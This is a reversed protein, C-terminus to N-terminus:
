YDKLGDRVKSPSVLGLPGTPKKEYFSLLIYKSSIDVFDRNYDDLTNSFTKLEELAGTRPRIPAGVFSLLREATSAWNAKDSGRHPTALFIISNTAAGISNFIPRRHAVALAQCSTLPEM